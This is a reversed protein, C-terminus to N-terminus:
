PQRHGNCPDAWSSPDALPGGRSARRTGTYGWVGRLSKAGRAGARDLEEVLARHLARRGHRTHESAFGDAEGVHCLRSLGASGRVADLADHPPRCIRVDEITLLRHSLLETAVLTGFPFPRVFRWGITADRKFRALAGVGGLVGVGLLVLPTM